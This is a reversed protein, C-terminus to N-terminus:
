WSDSRFPGAPLDEANVLNADDPNDAWAYRVAAPQPIEPHWAVLTEGEIAAEAWRFRRDNGAISVQRVPGGGRTALGAAYDFRVRVRGEAEMVACRFTPGRPVVDRGYTEALAIRALREGVSRKDRPHIDDAEGVDIAVAYSAGPVAAAARVQADRLEAWNSQGPQEARQMYNALQVQIFPWDGQGWARRWDSIMAPLMRAYREAEAANSEGQYWITGAIAYPLLPHVRSDFLIHPSNPNGHGFPPPPITVVGWDQEVVYRWDGALPIAQRDDGVPHVRMAPAPGRMGGDYAHSRARVAITLVGDDGVTGAPVRYSRLTSWADPGDEWSLGGVRLGGAYSDDHKDIAGLELQLEQGAWAAPLEVRRRFWFVGSGRHGRQQWSAPLAMTDWASDDFGPQHWGAEAGRNGADTPAARREWDLASLVPEDEGHDAVLAREYHALEDRGSPDQALAERSMWAQVRTGGWANSILGIPIDLETCLRHGFWAGVASFAALSRLECRQWPQDLRTQRGLQAPTGVKLLRVRDRDVQDMFAETEGCSELSWQMNSQGSCLWVEGILVDECAVEGDPGTAVLRHPGGAPLPPLRLSWRGDLDASVVASVGALTVRVVGGPQTSGWVPIPIGRQLVAHDSFPPALQM